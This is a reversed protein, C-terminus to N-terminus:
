CFVTSIKAIITIKSIDEPMLEVFYKFVHRVAM